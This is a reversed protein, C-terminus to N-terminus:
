YERSYLNGPQLSVVKNGEEVRFQTELSNATGFGPLFCVFHLHPGSSWGVNGSYAIVDGKKVSNGLELPTGNYRIHAYRSFSGDPHMVVIYNNFKSCEERPCSETNNKEIQVVVGDRAALVATGEPMTFDLANENQHSFVGHYGQHLMFKQGKQFPLDYQFLKDYNTITVDGMTSIFKYNFTYRSSGDIVSLEGIKFRNGGPPVVFIRKGGGSFFLNSSELNLAVSVPYLEGNNAYLVFGGIKNEHFVKITQAKLAITLFVFLSTLLLRFKM